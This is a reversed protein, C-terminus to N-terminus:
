AQERVMAFAEEELKLFAQGLQGVTMYFTSADAAALDGFCMSAWPAVHAQFFARQEDLPLPGSGFAGMILGSMIECLTALHDEPETAESKRAVGLKALRIRLEALSRGFMQGNRYYSAYPMIRPTPVGLFLADYEEAIAQPTRSRAVAVLAGLAHGLPSDDPELACLLRHTAADPARAVLIALLRYMDARGREEEAIADAPTAPAPGDLPEPNKTM